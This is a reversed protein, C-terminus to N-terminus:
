PAAADNAGSQGKGKDGKPEPELKWERDTLLLQRRECGDADVATFTLPESESGGTFEYRGEAQTECIKSPKFTMTAGEVKVPSGLDYAATGPATASAEDGKFRLTWDGETLFETDSLKAVFAGEPPAVEATAGGKGHGASGGSGDEDEGSGCGTLAIAAVGALLCLRPFSRSEHTWATM